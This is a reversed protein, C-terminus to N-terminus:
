AAADNEAKIQTLWESFSNAVIKRIGESNVDEVIGTKTNLVTLFTDYGPESIVIEYDKLPHSDKNMKTTAIVCPYKAEGLGWGLKYGYVETSINGLALYGTSDIFEKYDDPLNMGLLSELESSPNM